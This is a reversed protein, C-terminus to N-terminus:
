LTICVTDVDVHCLIVCMCVWVGEFSLGIVAMSIAAPVSMSWSIFSSLSYKSLCVEKPAVAAVPAKAIPSAPADSDTSVKRLKAGGRIAALLASNGGGGGAM